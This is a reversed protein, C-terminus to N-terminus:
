AKAGHNNLAWKSGWYSTLIPWFIAVGLGVVALAVGAGTTGDQTMGMTDAATAPLQQPTPTTRPAPLTETKLIM